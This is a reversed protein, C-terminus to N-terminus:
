YDFVFQFLEYKNSLKIWHKEVLATLGEVQVEFFGYERDLRMSHISSKEIEYANKSEVVFLARIKKYTATKELYISGFAEKDQIFSALSDIEPKVIQETLNMYSKKGQLEFVRFLSKPRDTMSNNLLRKQSNQQYQNHADVLSKLLYKSRFREQTLAELVPDSAQHTGRLKENYQRAVATYGNFLKQRLSLKMSMSANSTMSMNM